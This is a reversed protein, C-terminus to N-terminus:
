VLDKRMGHFDIFAAKLSQADDENKVDQVQNLQAELAQLRIVVKEEADIFFNNLNSLEQLVGMWWYLM